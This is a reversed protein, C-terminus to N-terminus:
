RLMAAVPKVGASDGGRPGSAAMGRTSGEPAGRVRRAVLGPDRLGHKELEERVDPRKLIAIFERSLRDTIERPMKAPGFLGAWSTISFQPADRGRRHDARRAPPAGRKGLTTVIARLKGERVQPSPSTSSSAFMM